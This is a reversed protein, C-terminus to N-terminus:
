KSLVLGGTTVVVWKEGRREIATVRGLGDVIAGQSVWAISNPGQIVASGSTAGLLVFGSAPRDSSRSFSSVPAYDLAPQEAATQREARMRGTASTAPKSFISLHELGAFEPRRENNSIMCSAFTLSGIALLLGLSRVITEGRVHERPYSARSLKGTAGRAGSQEKAHARMSRTFHLRPM